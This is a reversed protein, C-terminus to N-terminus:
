GKKKLKIKINLGFFDAWQALEKVTMDQIRKLAIRDEGLTKFLYDLREKVTNKKAARDIVKQIHPLFLGM